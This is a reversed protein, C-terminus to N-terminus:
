VKRRRVLRPGKFGKLMDRNKFAIEKFAWSLLWTSLLRKLNRISWTLTYNKNKYM